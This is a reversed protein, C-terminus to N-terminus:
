IVVSSSKIVVIIQLFYYNINILIKETVSVLPFKCEYLISRTYSLNLFQKDFNTHIQKM